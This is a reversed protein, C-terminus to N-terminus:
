SSVIVIIAHSEILIYKFSKGPKRGVSFEVTQKKSNMITPLPFSELDLSWAKNKSPTWILLLWM